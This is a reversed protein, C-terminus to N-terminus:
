PPVSPEFGDGELPSDRAFRVKSGNDLIGAVSRQNFSLVALGRSILDATIDAQLDDKTIRFSPAPQAVGRRRRRSGAGIREVISGSRFRPLAESNAAAAAPGIIPATLTVAEDIVM